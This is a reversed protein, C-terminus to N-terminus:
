KLLDSLFKFEPEPKSVRRYEKIASILKTVDSFYHTIFKESKVNKFKLNKVCYISPKEKSKKYENYKNESIIVLMEIEPSTIVNIVEVKDKYADSLKFKERKSDLIRYIRIKKSFSKNLYEREFNKAGRCRIPDEEIMDKRSFILKDNDLLIDIIAEEAAGKCICAIYVEETM